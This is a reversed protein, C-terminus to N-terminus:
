TSGEPNPSYLYLILTGMYREKGWFAHCQIHPYTQLLIPSGLAMIESGPVDSRFPPARCPSLHCQQSLSGKMTVPGGGRVETVNLHEGKLLIGEWSSVCGSSYSGSQQTLPVSLSCTGNPSMGLSASSSVLHLGVPLGSQYIVWRRVHALIWMSSNSIKSLAM